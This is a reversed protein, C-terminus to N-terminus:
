YWLPGILSGMFGKPHNCCWRTAPKLHARLQTRMIGFSALRESLRHLNKESPYKPNGSDNINVAVFTHEFNVM